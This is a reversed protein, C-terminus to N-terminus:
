NYTIGVVLSICSTFDAVSTIFHNADPSLGNSGVLTSPSMEFSLRTPWLRPPFVAKEKAKPMQRGERGKEATIPMSGTAPVLHKWGWGWMRGGRESGKLIEAGMVTMPVPSPGLDALGIVHGQAGSPKLWTANKEFFTPRSAGM